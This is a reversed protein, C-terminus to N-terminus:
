FEVIISKNQNKLELNRNQIDVHFKMNEQKAWEKIVLILYNFQPPKIITPNKEFNKFSNLFSTYNNFIELIDFVSVIKHGNVNSFRSKLISGAHIFEINKESIDM